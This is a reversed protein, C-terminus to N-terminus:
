CTIHAFVLAIDTSGTIFGSEWIEKATRSFKCDKEQYDSMVMEKVYEKELFPQTLHGFQLYEAANSKKLKKM